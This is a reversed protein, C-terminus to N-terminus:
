IKFFNKLKEFTSPLLKKLQRDRYEEQSIFLDSGFYVIRSTDDLIAFYPIKDYMSDIGKITYVKGLTLDFKCKDQRKINDIFVVKDNLKM